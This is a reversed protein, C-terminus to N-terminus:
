SEKQPTVPRRLVADYNEKWEHVGGDRVADIALRVSIASRAGNIVDSMPRTGNRVHGAFEALAFHTPDWGERDEEIILPVGRRESFATRTAGSVGDVIGHELTDTAESFLTAGDRRLEVTGRSGKFTMLFGDHANSTLSSCTLRFGSPYDFIAHVNDFTERGDHWYDVGGNGIVRDPRSNFIWNTLDIQHSSLEALLGGSYERFLRWNVIRHHSGDPLDRRWDGNRNWQATVHLIRGIYDAQIMERVRRFLPASRFQYGVQFVKLSKDARAVLNIAEDVGYAMTKECYVHHGTDLADVAMRHHLSLPTAIIVADVRADDLLARYNSYVRCGPDAAALGEELRFPLIDCCAVTRVGGVARAVHMLGVGRRGSGIVGLRLTDGIPVSERGDLCQAGFLMGSAALGSTKLFSRRNM